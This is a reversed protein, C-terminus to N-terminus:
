NTNYPLSSEDPPPNTPSSEFVAEEVVTQPPFTVILYGPKQTDDLVLAPSKPDSSDLRLNDGEIQLTLLDDPRLLDLKITM